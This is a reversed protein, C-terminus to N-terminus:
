NITISMACRFGISFQSETPILQSRAACKLENQHSYWSGGRVVRKISSESEPSANVPNKATASSYFNADYIDAVWEAVNGAMNYIRYPSQGSPYENVPEAEGGRGGSEGEGGQSGGEDDSTSKENKDLRM